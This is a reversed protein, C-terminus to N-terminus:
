EIVGNTPPMPNYISGYPIIEFPVQQPSRVSTRGGTDTATAVADYQGIEYEDSIIEVTCYHDLNTHEREVGTTRNITIITTHSLEELTLPTGDARTYPPTCSFPVNTFGQEGIKGESFGLSSYTITLIILNRITIM